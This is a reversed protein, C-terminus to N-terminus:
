PEHMESWETCIRQVLDTMALIVEFTYIQRSSLIRLIRLIRIVTALWTRRHFKDTGRGLRTGGERWSTCPYFAIRGAKDRWIHSTETEM